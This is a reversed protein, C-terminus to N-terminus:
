FYFQSLYTSLNKISDTQALKEAHSHFNAKESDPEPVHM